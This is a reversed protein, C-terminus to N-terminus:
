RKVDAIKTIRTGGRTVQMDEPIDSGPFFYHGGWKVLGKEFLVGEIYEYLDKSERMAEHGAPATLLGDARLAVVLNMAFDEFRKHEIMHVNVIRGGPPKPMLRAPQPKVYRPKATETLAIELLLGNVAELVREHLSM